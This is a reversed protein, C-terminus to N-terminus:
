KLLLNKSSVPIHARSIVDTQLEAAPLNWPIAYGKSSTGFVDIRSHSGNEAVPLSNALTQGMVLDPDLFIKNLRLCVPLMYTQRLNPVGRLQWNFPFAFSGLRVMNESFGVNCKCLNPTSM